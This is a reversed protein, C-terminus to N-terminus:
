SKDVSPVVIHQNVRLDRFEVEPNCRRLLWLPVEFQDRCLTWYSDGGKVQYTYLREIRYVAFFDEQLRKHYEYRQEEFKKGSVRHLPIKIKQGSRLMRGYRLGNLRRLERARVKLWEAYHGLTEEVEVQILGVPRGQHDYTRLIHIDATVIEPNIDEPDKNLMELRLDPAAEQEQVETSAEMVVVPTAAVMLVAPQVDSSVKPATPSM